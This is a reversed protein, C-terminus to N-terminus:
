YIKIVVFFGRGTTAHSPNSGGVKPNHAMVQLERRNSLMIWIVVFHASIASAILASIFLVIIEIGM